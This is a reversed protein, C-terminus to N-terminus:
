HRDGESQSEAHKHYEVVCGIQFSHPIRKEKPVASNRKANNWHLYPWASSSRRRFNRLLVLQDTSIGYRGVVQEILRRHDTCSVPVLLRSASWCRTLEHLHLLFPRSLPTGSPRYSNCGFSCPSERGLCKSGVSLGQPGLRLKAEKREKGQWQLRCSVAM